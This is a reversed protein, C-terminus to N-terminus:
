EKTIGLKEMIKDIKKEALLQESHREVIKEVIQDKFYVAFWGVLGMLITIASTLIVDKGKWWKRTLTPLNIDELRGEVSQVAGTLRINTNEQVQARHTEAAIHDVIKDSLGHILDRTEKGGQQLAIIQDRIEQTDSAQKAFKLRSWVMQVFQHPSASLEDKTVVPCDPYKLIMPEHVNSTLIVVQVKPYNKKIQLIFAEGRMGPMNLDLVILGIGGNGALRIEAARGSEFEEATIGARLLLDVVIKRVSAVDDVVLVTPLNEM